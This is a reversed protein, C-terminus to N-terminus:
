ALGCAHHAHPCARARGRIGVPLRCRSRCRRIFVHLSGAPTAWAGRVAGGMSLPAPRPRGLRAPPVPGTAQAAQSSRSALDGTAPRAGRRRPVGVGGGLWDPGPNAPDSPREPRPAAFLLSGTPTAPRYFNSPTALRFFNSTYIKYAPFRVRKLM